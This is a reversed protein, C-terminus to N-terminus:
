IILGGNENKKKVMQLSHEQASGVFVLGVLDINVVVDLCWLLRRSLRERGVIVFIMFFFLCLIIVIWAAHFTLALAATISTSTANRLWFTFSHLLKLTHQIVVVVIYVLRLEVRQIRYLLSTGGDGTSTVRCLSLLIKAVGVRHLFSWNAAAVTILREVITLLNKMGLVFIFSVLLLTQLLVLRNVVGSLARLVEIHLCRWRVVRWRIVIHIPEVLAIRIM